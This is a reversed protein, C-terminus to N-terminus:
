RTSRLWENLVAEEETTVSGPGCLRRLERFFEGGAKAIVEFLEHSPAVATRHVSRDATTVTLLTSGGWSAMEAVIAIPQDPFYRKGSGARRCEDLVQVVLPWLWNIDDWLDLGLVEVGDVVVSIAGPVYECDGDHRAAASIAAFEGNVKVYSTVEVRRM